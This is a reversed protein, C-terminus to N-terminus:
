SGQDPAIREVTATRLWGVHGNSLRVEAFGDQEQLINLKVGEHLVFLVKSGPKPASIVQIRPELLIAETRDHFRQWQIVSVVIALIALLGVGGAAIGWARGWNRERGPTLAMALLLFFLLVCALSRWAWVDMGGIREWISALDMGPLDEVRDVMSSRALQLNGRIDEASPDLRLAREYHLIARGLDNLQFHCNGLDYELGASTYHSAVSDYLQLAGTFDGAAYARHARDVLTDAEAPALALARVTFVVLLLAFSRM